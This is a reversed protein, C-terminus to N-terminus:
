MSPGSNKPTKAENQQSAGGESDDAVCKSIEEASRNADFLMWGLRIRDDLKGLGCGERQEHTKETQADQLEKCRGKRGLLDQKPCQSEDQPKPQGGNKGAIRKVLFKNGSRMIEPFINPWNEECSNQKYDVQEESEYVKRSPALPHPNSRHEQPQAGNGC